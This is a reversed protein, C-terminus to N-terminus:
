NNEIPISLESSNGNISSGYYKPIRGEIIKMVVPIQEKVKVKKSSFPMIIREEVEVVVNIELLANNIGYNTIKSRLNTTISGVLITKIPIKPGLEELGSNNFVVGFPIYYISNKNNSLNKELNTTIENLNKNVLLSDFDVSIIEKENNLTTKIVNNFKRKNTYETISKNIISTANMKNNIMANEFMIPTARISFLLLYVLVLMIIFILTVSIYDIKINIKRRLKVKRM